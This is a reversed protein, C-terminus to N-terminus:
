AQDDSVTDNVPITKKIREAEAPDDVIMDIIDKEVYQRFEGSPVAALAKTYLEMESHQDRIDFTDIYDVNFDEPLEIGTWDAFIKWMKIETEEITDAM